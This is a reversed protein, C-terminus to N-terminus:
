AFRCEHDSAGPDRYKYKYECKYRHAEMSRKPAIRRRRKGTTVVWGVGDSQKEGAEGGM